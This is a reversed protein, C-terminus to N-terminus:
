TGSYAPTHKIVWIDRMRHATRQTLRFRGHDGWRVGWSNQGKWWDNRYYGHLFMAHGGKRPGPDDLIGGSYDEFAKGVDMGFVIVGKEYLAQKMEEIRTDGTSDIRYYGELWKQDAAKRYANWDPDHNVREKLFTSWSAHDDPDFPWDKEPCVGYFQAAKFLYRLGTGADKYHSQHLYRAIFYNFLSSADWDHGNIAAITSFAGAGSQGVCSSTQNQDKVPPCHDEWDAQDGFTAVGKLLESVKRDRFDRPDPRWGYSTIM